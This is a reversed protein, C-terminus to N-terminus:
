FARAYSGGRQAQESVAAKTAEQIQPMMTMVESRVTAQVGTSFSLSQNVIVPSGGGTMGRTDAANKVVSASKPIILEPGREGVLTPRNPQIAGGSAAAATNGGGFLNGMTPLQKFGKVEFAGGAGFMANIATNVIAFEILKKILINIINSVTSKLTGMGNGVGTVMEHISDTVGSSLAQMSSNIVNNVAELSELEEKIGRISDANNLFEVTQDHTFEGTKFIAAQLAIQTEDFGEAQMKALELQESQKKLEKSIRGSVAESQKDQSQKAEETALKKQELVHKAIEASLNSYQTSLGTLRNHLKRYYATDAQGATVSKEMLRQTEEIEKSVAAQAISIGYISSTDAKGKDFFKTLEESASKIGKVLQLFFPNLEEGIALGLEEVSAKMAKVQNAYSGSTRAADGQADTTGKLILNLRAQVKEAASVQDKAKTIGMAFLEAQLEAETIVIGYRRVTEHNGVLASQFNQMTEVDSANNFSAVDTALKALQVSLAAAEGRAFGMPVFTDQVSAAMGELEFRSRGVQDAFEALDKRVDGAFQGFVVSSKAQMEEVASAFNVAALSGRAFERIVVAGVVAKIASGLKDMNKASRDGTRKTDKELQGLKRRVDKLDATVEVLLTDVTAM